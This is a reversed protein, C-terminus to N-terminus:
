PKELKNPLAGTQPVPSYPEIGPSVWFYLIGHSLQNSCRGSVDFTSPELGEPIVSLIEYSLHNSCRDKLGPTSLEFREPIVFYLDISTITVQGVTEQASHTRNECLGCLNM